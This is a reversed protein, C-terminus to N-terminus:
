YLDDGMKVVDRGSLILLYLCAQRYQGDRPTWRDVVHYRDGRVGELIWQAGDNGGLDDEISPMSWFNAENLLKVLHCWAEKDFSNQDIRLVKGPEYGGKGDSEVSNMQFRRGYRSVQVIIPHDFTRLWIFRYTEFDAQDNTEILLSRQNLARLFKGYWESQFPDFNRDRFDAPSKPFFGTRSQPFSAIDVSRGPYGMAVNCSEDKPSEITNVALTDSVNTQTNRPETSCSAVVSWVAFFVLLISLWRISTELQGGLTENNRFM